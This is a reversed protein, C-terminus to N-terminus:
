DPLDGTRCLQAWWRASDKPTRVQTEYDVHVIGFRKAYGFAWEFNDLLSWVLYGRLDAGAEIAEAAARVHSRLYDIREEDHVMGDDGVEDPWAMGNETIVLGTGRPGTYDRHLRVILDRFADPTIEWGMDTVPIGRRVVQVDECGVNPSPPDFRRAQEAATHMAAPEAGTVAQSTYYNVGLVEIDASILELDGDQVLEEPWLGGLDRELEAPYSGTMMPEVFIRNAMLDVRRAAEVDAASDPNAPVAPTFNLTAGLTLEPDRRRLEQIALGHGLLLHHTARLAAVPETRGPAHVGAAYGLYASVWPENLTTWIRVRDGLADHVVGAYDAFRLATDREPWGGRDELAQPLDWHYLTLWPTIQAELLEDILRSYFDLGAPNPTSGDPCVRAWSTSFRYTDLGLERMMAVDDRYRHYHDCAVSGDDGNWVAGPTRAFEDWISDRRGDETAAGEIQYAATAAGWRFGAPFTPRTPRPDNM